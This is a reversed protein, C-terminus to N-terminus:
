QLTDMSPPEVNLSQRSVTYSVMCFEASMNTRLTASMISFGYVM